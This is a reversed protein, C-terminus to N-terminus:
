QNIVNMPLWAMVEMKKEFVSNTVKELKLFREKLKPDVSVWSIKPSFKPFKSPFFGM